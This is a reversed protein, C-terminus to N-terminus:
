WMRDAKGELSSESNLWKEYNRDQRSTQMITRVSRRVWGKGKMTFLAAGPLRDFHLWIRARRLLRCHSGVDCLPFALTRLIVKLARPFSVVVVEKVKERGDRGEWMRRSGCRSGRTNPVHLCDGAEPPTHRSQKGGPFYKRSEAPGAVEGGLWHRGWEVGSDRRM